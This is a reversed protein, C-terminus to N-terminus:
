DNEDTANHLGALQDHVLVIHNPLEARLLEGVPSVFLSIRYRDLLKTQLRYVRVRNHGVVISDNRAEWRLGLSAPSLNNTSLPLGMAGAMAPLMPGGLERLLAQPNRFEAFRFTRDFRDGGADVHVRVKQESANAFLEYVDPRLRVRTEFTQWAYNTDLKLGASFRIRTPFGPITMNGDLDLTYYALRPVMGEIPDDEDLFRAGTVADQGIDPRWHCYGLHNTGQRIELTSHDPATLMKKWVMGPPVSSAIRRPGFESRWLLFMMALWSGTAMLLWVRTGWSISM